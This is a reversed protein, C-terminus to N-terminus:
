APGGNKSAVTLNLMKETAAVAALVQDPHVGITTLIKDSNNEQWLIKCETLASSKGGPPIRVEYDALAPLEIGCSEAWSTVANMFADYGGDGTGSAEYIEENYELKLSCTPETDLGSTIVVDVFSIQRHDPLNLVDAIIFPLDSATVTQKKDGLSIVRELVKARNQENLEIGIEQLNLELSAKGAMKGLAYTRRRGFRSPILKSDYLSGKQDGDAHIGATHTFVDEGVIPANQAIRKGSFTEVITSLMHLNKEVVQTEFRLHDNVGAVVEALAANGAREGLCNVTTHCGSAGSQLATLVNITGLGYDNQPHFDFHVGPFRETMMKFAEAVQTPYLIGLTDPLMLRRVKLDILHQALELSYELSNLYGNSWDELYVNVEFNNEQAYHVTEAIDSFHQEKTKRLQNKLHNFSGKTLLNIVRGGCSKIWDVSKTKDVFGLVEIRDVLGKSQAWGTILRVGQEEGVSVRASAVEIRNVNVKELLIKAIHMKEVPSYSLNNTQEGDRLTTDM